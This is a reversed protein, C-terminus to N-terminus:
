HPKPFTQFSILILILANNFSLKFVSPWNIRVEFMVFFVVVYLKSIWNRAQSMCFFTATNFWNNPDGSKWITKKIVCGNMIYKNVIFYFFLIEFYSIVCTDSLFPQTGGDQIKLFLKNIDTMEEIQVVESCFFFLVLDWVM